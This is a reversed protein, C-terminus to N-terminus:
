TAQAKEAKYTDRIQMEIQRALPLGKENAMEELMRRAEPSLTILLKKRYRNVTM